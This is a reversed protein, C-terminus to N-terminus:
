SLIKNCVKYFSLDKTSNFVHCSSKLNPIVITIIDLQKPTKLDGERDLGIKDWKLEHGEPAFNGKRLWM